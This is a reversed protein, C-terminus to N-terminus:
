GLNTSADLAPVPTDLTPLDVGPRCIVVESTNDCCLRRLSGVRGPDPPRVQRSDRRLPFPLPIRISSCLLPFPSRDPTLTPFTPLLRPFTPFGSSASPGGPPPMRLLSM